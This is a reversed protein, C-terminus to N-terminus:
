ATRKAVTASRATVANEVGEMAAMPEVTKVETVTVL